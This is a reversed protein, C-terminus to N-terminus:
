RPKPRDVWMDITMASTADFHLHSYNGLVEAIQIMKSLLKAREALATECLITHVVQDLVDLADVCLLCWNKCFFRISPEDDDIFSWLCSTGMPEGRQLSRDLQASQRLHDEDTAQEVGSEFVRPGACWFFLFFLLFDNIVFVRDHTNRAAMHDMHPWTHQTNRSHCTAPRPVRIRRFYEFQILTLHQAVVEASM